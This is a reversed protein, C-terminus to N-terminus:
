NLVERGRGDPGVNARSVIYEDLGDTPCGVACWERYVRKCEMGGVSDCRGSKALRRYTLIFLKTKYVSPM